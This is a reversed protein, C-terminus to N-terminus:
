LDAGPRITETVDADGGDIAVALAEALSGTALAIEVPELGLLRLAAHISPRTM